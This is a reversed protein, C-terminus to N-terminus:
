CSYKIFSIFFTSATTSYSRGPTGGYGAADKSGSSAYRKPQFTRKGNRSAIKSEYYINEKFILRYKTCEDRERNYQEFLSFNDVVNDNPLLRTKTSLALNIASEVNNSFEARNRELFINM